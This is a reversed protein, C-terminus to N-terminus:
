GSFCRPSSEAAGRAQVMERGWLVADATWFFATFALLTWMAAAFTHRKAEARAALLTLPFAPVFGILFSWVVFMGIAKCLEFYGFCVLLFVAMAGRARWRQRRDEQGHLSRRLTIHFAAYLCAPWTFLCRDLWHSFLNPGLFGLVFVFVFCGVAPARVSWQLARSVALMILCAFFWLRMEAGAPADNPFDRERSLLWTEDWSWSSAAAGPKATHPALEAGLYVCVAQAPGRVFLRGRWLTPPTWCLGDNFLQVRGLERYADADARALILTGSDNVLILKGDVALVAAHGVRDTSWRVAGTSWDLCKFAGRSPRHPSAQFQKLDFGYVHGDCLVSSVIDNSFERSTWVTRTTLTGDAAAQLELCQAPVRFPSALLLRPERYIPWASHEDYGSSLTQRHLLKGSGLEVLVLFNQLFGVVCRRGAFTIPMAPCYSCQDDGVAWLTRGDDVHLAVLSAAPGGVPLIM